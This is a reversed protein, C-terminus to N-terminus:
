ASLPVDGLEPMRYLNSESVKDNEGPDREKKIKRECRELARDLQEVLELLKRPDQERSAAKSLEKWDETM